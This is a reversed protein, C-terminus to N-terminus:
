FLATLRLGVLYANPLGQTPSVGAQQTPNPARASPNIIAQAFPWVMLRSPAVVEYGYSAELVWEYTQVEVPTGYYQQARNYNRTANGVIPISTGLSLMDRPRGFPGRWLMGADFQWSFGNRDDPVWFGRTFVELSSGPRRMVTAEAIAHVGYNSGFRRPVGNSNPNALSLGNEDTQVSNFGGNNYWGGVKIVWPRPPSAMSGETEQEEPAGPGIVAEGIYNIGRAFSFTTGYLNHWAGNNNVGYKGGPDGSTIAFRFGNGDDPDGLAIRIGPQPLPYQQGGSPQANAMIDPYGFGGNVLWSAAHSITFETDLEIQGVRISGLDGFRRQVWAEGLRVTSYTENSSATSQAGVLSITMQRGLIGYGTVQTSWGDLGYLQGLDLNVGVMALGIAQVGTRVGGRANWVTDLWGQGLVCVGPSVSRGIYCGFGRTEGERVEDARAPALPALLPLAAALALLGALRPPAPPSPPASTGSRRPPLAM